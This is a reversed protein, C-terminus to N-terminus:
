STWDSPLTERSRGPSAAAAVRVVTWRMDGDGSHLQQKDRYSSGLTGAM